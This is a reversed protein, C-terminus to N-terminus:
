LLKGALSRAYLKHGDETPHCGDTDDCMANGWGGPKTPMGLDAGNVVSHGYLTGIEYIAQRYQNLTYGATNPTNEDKNTYPIPTIFIVTTTSYNTALYECIGKLAGYFTSTGATSDFAGLEVGSNFDNTGGAIVIFDTEGTFTVTIRNYISYQGSDAIKSGSIAMNNLTAGVHDAFYRIYPMGAVLGPSTVGSTISDGFATIKKGAFDFPKYISEKLSITKINNTNDTSLKDNADIGSVLSDLTYRKRVYYDTVGAINWQAARFSKAGNPISATGKQMTNVTGTGAVGSIFANSANSPNYESYFAIMLAATGAHNLYYDIGSVTDEIPIFDTVYSDYGTGAIVGTSNLFGQNPYPKSPEIVQDLKTALTDTNSQIDSEADSLDDTLDDLREDFDVLSNVKVQTAYQGTRTAYDWAAARYYTATAPVEAEGTKMAATQADGSIASIFGSAANTTYFAILATATNGFLHYKITQGTIPIFDTIASTSANAEVGTNPKIYKGTVSFEANTEIVLGSNSIASSLTQVESAAKDASWVKTTDGAGATDDIEAGGSGGQPTMWVPMLPRGAPSPSGQNSESSLTRDWASNLMGATFPMSNPSPNAIASM